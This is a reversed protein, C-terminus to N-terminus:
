QSTIPKSVSFTEDLQEIDINNTNNTISLVSKKMLLLNKKMKWMKTKLCNSYVNLNTYRILM